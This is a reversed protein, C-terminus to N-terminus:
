QATYGGDIVQLSGTIFGAKDSALFSVLEAVEEPQGLRGLPQLDAEEKHVQNKDAGSKQCYNDIAKHYLPTEITGPCVANARINYRAYDLATTKAISALSAKSLNYAFSNQKAILAQDSSILIIAGGKNAKMNPLVAKIAAYAGKVNINFVKDLDEEPTDEITASYHIGANSVLVDIVHERAIETIIRNVEQVQTIDCQCFEGEGSPTLDLNFVRYGQTLFKQVISLGIGSSGGTVICVRKM